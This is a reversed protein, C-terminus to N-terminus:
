CRRSPLSLQFQDFAVPRGDPGYGATAGHGNLNVAVVYDDTARWTLRHQRAPVYFDLDPLGAITVRLEDLSKGVAGGAARLLQSPMSVVRLPVLLGLKRLSWNRM